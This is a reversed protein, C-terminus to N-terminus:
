SKLAYDPNYKNKLELKQAYLGKEIIQHVREVVGQSHPRYPLGHLLKINNKECYQKLTKNKLEQANDEVFYKLQSFIEIFNRIKSFVELSEKTDM